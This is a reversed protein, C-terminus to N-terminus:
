TGTLTRREVWTGPTGAVTCSWGEIIYQSGGAGAVAPASNFVMDGARWTGSTPAATGYYSVPRWGTNGTGTDKLYVKGNTIDRNWSTLGATVSGEPSATSLLDRYFGRTAADGVNRVYNRENGLTQYTGSGQFPYGNHSDLYNETATVGAEINIAASLNGDIRSLRLSGGTQNWFKQSGVPYWGRQHVRTASTSSECMYSATAMVFNFEEFVISTLGATKTNYLFRSAADTSNNQECRGDQIIIRGCSATPDPTLENVLRMMYAIGTGDASWYCNVYTQENNIGALTVVSVTNAGTYQNVFRCGVFTKQLNSEAIGRCFNKLSDNNTDYYASGTDVNNQFVCGFASMVEAGCNYLSGVQYAGDILVDYLVPGTGDSTSRGLVLGAGPAGAGTAQGSIRIGQIRLHRSGACNVIAKGVGLTSGSPAFIQAGMSGRITIQAKDNFALEDSVRWFGKPFLLTGGDALADWAAQIAATDDNSGDGIAGYRRVDTAGEMDEAVITNAIRYGATVGKAATGGQARVITLTDSSRGTVRVVESNATTPFEAPPWITAWFPVTPFRSGEGTTVVLSTGSTSPSPPTVVLSTALNAHGTSM